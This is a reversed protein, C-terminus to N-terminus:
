EVAASKAMLDRCRGVGRRDDRFRNQDIAPHGVRLEIMRFMRAHFAVFTMVGALAAFSGINEHRRFRAAHFAVARFAFDRGIADGAVGIVRRCLRTNDDPLGATCGPREPLHQQPPIALLM